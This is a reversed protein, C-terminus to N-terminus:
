VDPVITTPQHKWEELGCDFQPMLVYLLTNCVVNTGSWKDNENFLIHEIINRTRDGYWSIIVQALLGSDKVIQSVVGATPQPWQNYCDVLIEEQSASIPKATIKECKIKKNPPEEMEESLSDEEQDTVVVSSDSADIKVQCFDTPQLDSSAPSNSFSLFKIATERSTFIKGSPSYFM